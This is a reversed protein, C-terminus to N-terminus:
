AGSTGHWLGDNRVMAVYQRMASAFNGITRDACLGKLRSAIRVIDREGNLLAPSIDAKLRRSVGNLYSVYSRPTAGVVQDNDGVGQQQIYELYREEHQIMTVGQIALPMVM